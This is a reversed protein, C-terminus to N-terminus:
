VSCHNTNRPFSGTVTSQVELGQVTLSPESSSSADVTISVGDSPTLAQFWTASLKVAVAASSVSLKRAQPSPPSVVFRGGVTNRAPTLEGDSTGSGAVRDSRLTLRRPSPPTMRRRRARPLAALHDDSPNKAQANKTDAWARLGHQRTAPKKLYREYGRDHNMQM